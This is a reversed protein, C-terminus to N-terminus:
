GSPQASYAPYDIRGLPRQDKLCRVSFGSTGSGISGYRGSGDNFYGLDRYWAYSTGSYESSSWWYGYYGLSGFSSGDNYHLGGPLAEFGYLDTGNGNSNWGSASKLNLGADLGREGARDWEPDPYGYQSDVTGEMIKWEEDSPLHWGDPCIGRTGQQTVYQMMENWQYLGGHTDCNVQEDDYCYKEITGNDEPDDDGPIMEGINLNEKFWCQEGILVTNYIQGGYTITEIGPCPEGVGSTVTIYDIEEKTDSGYPNTVTLMVNYTGDDDYTYEPNQEISSNGDGFDWQWSTPTNSSIDTFSVNLPATGSTPTATFDAVPTNGTTIYNNKIETDSGYDNTAILIVTYSGASQYIHSPNQLNSNNGDGFDWQWSTPTNTSIDAFNVTLPVEGSTPIASFDANPPSDDKLCRVSFGLTKHFGNRGSGDNGYDLSRLWAYTGSDESSSWWYGYYGLNSFSGNSQSFGGPLARFGHLDTGNGNDWWRSTSKLNLGADFGRWEEDDWEPDPYGYQSDVEGELMKWEEDSPLHWGSPCIGRTGQLTVYQMVENWQYLGGLTDCNEPEDGYCYKEITSNNQMEYEGPIMEGINLNEKFWCQNGILVTNYTQGQWTVTEYGPCPESGGGSGVNIYNNKIETDTGYDNTAILIVTYNGASQYIHTPNQEISSNGDGFDWQWSTPSNISEDTFAVTLPATGSTPTAIFAAVPPIGSSAIIYDSKVETDSGYSNTVILVVTYMGADQYTHVLNQQTSSNGDGFDWQWNTPANTSQDTFNVTLPAAGSTPIGTFEAIPASGATTVNIFGNKIETDSGYDNNVTLVVTYTGADQYTHEPNQETSSNGDGFDWQWSTPENTSQDTFNVTLPATGSTPNGTFDAAPANGTTIYNNKIVTDSGYDNTVTLEVTYYGANQYIHTPNQEISSNGDGFDWQWSTPTNTSQDTFSVNLPTTGSTPNATFDAAPASGTTIYNNKIVTDSGYDNTVTLEVTYYGANQYIHSPNQLNSSNGDGFDWQWSTPTNTSQDTFNVTLPATGRRPIASFFVTPFNNDKLCRVSRGTSKTSAAYRKSGDNNYGLIRYYAGSNENSSWWFGHYGLNVCSGNSYRRGGPLAGFGYLDTGNGNDWWRSTSKLNLGVDLGRSGEDDWEPDPYGYQSDVNGELIKWEEDNPLHWGGPCVGVATYWDYLRGYTECYGPSGNYCWSNGSEYNLNEKFWCQNGIEVTNYTQGGYTIETIGECGSGGGGDQTTDSVQSGYATGNINTAYARVYYVTNETLGSIYSTYIGTGTGDVTHNDSLEPNQSTSWCVGRATVTSGGNSTVNGGSTASTQTINTIATTSITALGTAGEPQLEFTYSTNESPNDFITKDYYGDSTAKMALQDGPQFSFDDTKEHNKLEPLEDSGIYRIEYKEYKSASNSVLKNTKTTLGNSVTLFYVGSNGTFVEFSHTGHNLETEIEFVVSGYVDYLKIRIKEKNLVSLSFRTNFIFPNPFSSQLKIGDNNYPNLEDIASPWSLYLFPADGYVTTDGSQTLNEVFVSELPVPNGTNADKGEFSLVMDGKQAFINVSFLVLSISLLWTFKKIKEM